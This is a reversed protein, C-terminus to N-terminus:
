FPDITLSAYEIWIYRKEFEFWNKIWVMSRRNAMQWFSIDEDLQMHERIFQYTRRDKCGLYLIADFSNVVEEYAEGFAEYLQTMNLAVVTLNLDPREILSKVEQFYYAIDFGNILLRITDGQEEKAKRVVRDICSLIKESPTAEMAATHIFFAAKKVPGDPIIESPNNKELSLDFEATTYGQEELPKKMAAKLEGRPDIMIFSEGLQYSAHCAFRVNQARWGESLILFNRAKPMNEAFREVIDHRKMEQEDLFGPNEAM